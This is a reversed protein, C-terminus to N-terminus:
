CSENLIRGKRQNKEELMKGLQKQMGESFHVCHGLKLYLPCIPESAHRGCDYGHCGRLLDEIIVSPNEKFFQELVKRCRPRERYVM